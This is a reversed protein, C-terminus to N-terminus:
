KSLVVKNINLRINHANFTTSTYAGEYIEPIVYLYM